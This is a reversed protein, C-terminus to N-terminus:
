LLFWDTTVPGNAGAWRLRAPGHPFDMVTFRGLEDVAAAFRHGTLTELEVSALDGALVQGELADRTLVVEVSQTPDATEFALRNDAATSGRTGAVELAAEDLLAALDRDVDAYAVLGEAREVLGAPAPDDGLVSRLEALLQADVPSLDPESADTM